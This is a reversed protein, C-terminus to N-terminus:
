DEMAKLGRRRAKIARDCAEDEGYLNVSFRKRKPQNRKPSWVAEYFAYFKEKVENQVRRVGVPLDSDKKSRPLEALERRSLRPHQKTFAAVARAAANRCKRHDGKFRALQFVKQLNGSSRIVKALYGDIGDKPYVARYVHTYRTTKTKM